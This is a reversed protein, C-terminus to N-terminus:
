KTATDGLDIRITNDHNYVHLKVLTAIVIVVGFAILLVNVLGDMVRSNM